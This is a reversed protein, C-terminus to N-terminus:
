NLILYSTVLLLFKYSTDHVLYLTGHIQPPIRSEPAKRIGVEEKMMRLEVNSMLFFKYWTCHVMYWSGESPLNPDSYSDM